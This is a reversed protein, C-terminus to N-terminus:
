SGNKLKQYEHIDMKMFEDITSVGLREKVATDNTTAKAAAVAVDKAISKSLILEIINTLM